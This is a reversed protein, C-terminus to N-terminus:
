RDDEQETAAEVRSRIDGGATRTVLEDGDAVDGPSTVLRGDVRHTITWGHALAHAPDLGTVRAAVSAVDRDALGLHRRAEGRLRGAARDARASKADLTRLAAAPCAHRSGISGNTPASPARSTQGSVRERSRRWRAIPRPRPTALTPPSPAGAPKPESSPPSLVREVLAGATATPTKLSLHAVEDAVSRDIEHGLGTLM